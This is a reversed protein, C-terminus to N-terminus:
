QKANQDPQADRIETNIIFVSQDKLVIPSVNIHNRLQIHLLFTIRRQSSVLRGNSPFDQPSTLKEVSDLLGHLEELLVWSHQPRGFGLGDNATVVPHGPDEQLKLNEIVPRPKM